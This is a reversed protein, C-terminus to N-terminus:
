WPPTVLPKFEMNQRSTMDNVKGPVLLQTLAEQQRHLRMEAGYAFKAMNSTSKPLDDRQSPTPSFEFLLYPLTKFAHPHRLFCSPQFEFKLTFKSSLLSQFATIKPCFLFSLSISLPFLQFSASIQLSHLLAPSSSFTWFTKAAQHFHNRSM